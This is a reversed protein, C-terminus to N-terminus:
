SRRAQRRARECALLRQVLEAKADLYAQRDERLLPAFGKKLAAYEAVAAPDRRLHDRLLVHDLHPRSGAIVVYLHHHPLGPRARFAHRGAIGLDGEPAWGADALAHIAARSAHEDAVVVDVDIVPKAALGAVATSGVHEINLAVDAVVPQLHSRLLDFDEAWRPDHDVVVELSTGTAEPRLDVRATQLPEDM